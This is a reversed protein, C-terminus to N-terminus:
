SLLDWSLATGRLINAKATRGMVAAFHKPPLGYGPRIRRTNKTTLKEGALVDEVVYISRRFVMNREEAQQREYTPAGIAEWATRTEDVLRRLEAPEISFESDPGKHRRDDIFHKEIVCAGLAISTVSTAIGLTHDSLGAVVDFRTAMDPITRLNYQDAPAPYSSVCHLVIIDNHHRKITELSETIEELNAMGTSIIVPKKKSAIYDILPLDTAEFSAIKYAPVDLAELLDVATEDFPTSFVTLGLRRAHAFLEAHWSWPTHAERYLDYLKYGHWLGGKIQFDPRDCDITMTDPTYTQLKVAHAGAEKALTLLELAKRIDGNHNASVEAIVYPAHGPGIQRGDITITKM